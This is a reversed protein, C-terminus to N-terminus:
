SRELLMLGERLIDERSLLVLSSADGLPIFSDMGTIRSVKLEEPSEEMLRTFLEESLSGTKRCEDVLLIRKSKGIARLIAPIDLPSLWLLDVIRAKIGKKLLDGQAQISLYVGNGYSLICLDEGVGHIQCTGPPCEEGQPPYSHSWLQDGEKFLDRTHYLAIPELFIVVRHQEYAMRVCSRFLRVADAGNSPCAILLGPIDRLVALSNDNHFHGGFGKQYALSPLRLVMPNTFQSNSFFSLTAAEGRLQDEANHLYALFQIEPIPLFGNQSLGIAFGLISQEDLLSDFVRRKSFRKQLGSTVNYVGGKLGVDEGFVVSEPVSDLTEHLVQNLLKGLPQLKSDVTQKKFHFPSERTCKLPILPEMVEQATQLLPADEVRRNAEQVEERVREYLDLIENKPLIKNTILVQATHLLPDRAEESEIQDESRYVSEIDSGAHALLRVTKMQLFVPKRKRRVMEVADKVTAILDILCLGDCSLFTIAPFRSAATEIWGQPTPVSIGM